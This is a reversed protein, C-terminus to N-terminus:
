RRKKGHVGLLAGVMGTAVGFAMHAAFGRAHSQWPYRKNDGVLGLAPSVGEDMLLFYLAGFTAGGTLWGLPWRRAALVYAIGMGAGLTLDIASMLRTRDEQNLEM